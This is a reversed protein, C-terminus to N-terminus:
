APMTTATALVAQRRRNTCFLNWTCETQTFMMTPQNPNQSGKFPMEKMWFGKLGQARLAAWQILYIPGTTDQDLEIVPELPKRRLLARGDYPAIDTGINENQTRLYDELQSTVAWNTLISMDDGPDNQPVEDVLPTFDTYYMARRLRKILDDETVATYIDAYNKWRGNVDTSPNLNAVTTYGAPAGGNFGNKGGNVLQEASSMADTASKVVFYPIGVPTENDTAAPVRWLQREFGKIADGLGAIRQSQVEDLIKASGANMQILHEEMAWHWTNIRWPMKGKTLVNKIDPRTTYGLGVARFSGNTDQIVNFQIEPGSDLTAKKKRFIRKLAITNQYDSMADTMKMRGLDNLSAVLVDAIDTATTPM